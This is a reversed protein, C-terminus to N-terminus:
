MGRPKCISCWSTSTKRICKPSDMPELWSISPKIAPRAATAAKLDAVRLINPLGVGQAIERAVPLADGTLM